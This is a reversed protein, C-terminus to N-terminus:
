APVGSPTKSKLDSFIAREYNAAVTMVRDAQSAETRTNVCMHIHARPCICSYPWIITIYTVVHNVTYINRFPSATHAEVRTKGSVRMHTHMCVYVIDGLSFGYRFGCVIVCVRVCMHLNRFRWAPASWPMRLFVCVCVCVCVRMIYRIWRWAPATWPPATWHSGAQFNRKRCHTWSYTHAYTYVYVYIYIYIYIYIYLCV